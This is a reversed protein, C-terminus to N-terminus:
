LLPKLCYLQCLEKIANLGLEGLDETYGNVYLEVHNLMVEEDMEQAHTKMMSLLASEDERAMALSLGIAQEIKEANMASHRRHVGIGGLPLPLETELEWRAGLDVLTNLGLSKHTFRSEHIIVGASKPEELLRKVILDYRLEEVEVNKAMIPLGYRKLLLNATTCVGPIYVKKREVLPVEGQGVLLPGVGEGLASGVRILRYHESLKPLNAFSFKLVDPGDKSLGLTNLEEIDHFEFDFDYSLDPVKKLILPGFTYTDNPCPSIAVRLKQMM